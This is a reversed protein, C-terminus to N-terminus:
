TAKGQTHRTSQKGTHNQLTNGEAIIFFFFLLLSLFTIGSIKGTNKLVTMFATYLDLIVFTRDKMENNLKAVAQQLLLNHFGVLGNETGNCQQYSSLSTSRPLCGLPQLTSVVVKKVGMGNIRKM